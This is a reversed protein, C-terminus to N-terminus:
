IPGAQDRQVGKHSTIPTTEEPGFDWRAVTNTDAAHGLSSSVVLAICFCHRLWSINM